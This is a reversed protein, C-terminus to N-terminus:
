RKNLTWTGVATSGNTFRVTYSINAASATITGTFDCRSISSAVPPSIASGSIQGTPSITFSINGYFTSTKAFTGGSTTYSGNIVEAPPDGAGFVSGNFDVSMQGTQNITDASGSMTVTGTSSFTTNVWNGSWNGAFGAAIAPTMSINLTTAGAVTVSQTFNRHGQHQATLSAAGNVLSGISYRGDAGTTGTQGQVSVTVGAIPAGSAADTVLGSLSTGPTPPAGGVTAVVENSAGSSGNGNNAV